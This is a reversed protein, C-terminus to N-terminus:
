ESELKTKLIAGKPDLVLEIDKNASKIEVTSIRNIGKKIPPIIEGWAFPREGVRRDETGAREEQTGSAKEPYRLM